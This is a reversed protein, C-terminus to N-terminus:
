TGRSTSRCIRSTAYMMRLSLGNGSRLVGLFAGDRVGGALALLNLASSEGTVLPYEEPENVAGYISIIRAPRGPEAQSKTEVRHPVLSRDLRYDM